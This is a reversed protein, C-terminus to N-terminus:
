GIRFTKKVTAGGPDTPLPRTLRQVSGLLILGGFVLCIGPIIFNKLGRDIMAHQPNKPDYFVRVRQGVRFSPPNFAIPDPLTISQGDPGTFTVIAQYTTYPLTRSTSSPHVEIPRNEIVVGEASQSKTILGLFEDLHSRHMLYAGGLLVALGALLGVVGFARNIASIRARDMRLSPTSM